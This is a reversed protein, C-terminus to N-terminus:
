CSSTEKLYLYFFIVLRNLANSRKIEIMFVYVGNYTGKYVTGFEGEGIIAQLQIDGIM